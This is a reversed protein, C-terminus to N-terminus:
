WGRNCVRVLRWHHHRWIRQLHCHRHHWRPGIAIYIQPGGWSHHMPYAEATSSISGMGLGLTAATITAFMIKKLM